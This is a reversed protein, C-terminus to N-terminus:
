LSQKKRRALEKRAQKKWDMWLVKRRVAAQYFSSNIWSNGWSKMQKIIREEQEVSKEANEITNKLEANTHDKM